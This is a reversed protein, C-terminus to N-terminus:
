NYAYSSPLSFLRKLSCIIKLHYSTTATFFWIDHASVHYSILSSLSPFSLGRFVKFTLVFRKYKISPHVALWHLSSLLPTVHDSHHSIFSKPLLTWFLFSPSLHSLPLESLSFIAIISTPLNSFFPGPIKNLFHWLLIGILAATGLSFTFLSSDFSFDLSCARKVLHHQRSILLPLDWGMSLKLRCYAMWASIGSFCKTIHSQITPSFKPISLYFQTNDNSTIKFAKPNSSTMWPSTTSLYIFLYCLSALLVKNFGLACPIFRSIVLQSPYKATM